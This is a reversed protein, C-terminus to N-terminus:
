VMSDGDRHGHGDSDDGDAGDGDVCTWLTWVEVKWINKAYETVARDSSFPGTGAICEIVKKYWLSKNKWTEDVLRQSM